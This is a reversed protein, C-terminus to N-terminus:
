AGRCQHPDEVNRRVQRRVLSGIRQQWPLKPVPRVGATFLDLVDRM